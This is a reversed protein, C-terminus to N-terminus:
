SGIMTRVTVGLGIWFVACVLITLGYSLALPYREENIDADLRAECQSFADALQAQLDRAPSVGDACVAEDTHPKVGRDPTVDRIPVSTSAAADPASMFDMEPIRRVRPM